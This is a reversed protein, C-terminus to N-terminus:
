AVRWFDRELMAEQWGLIEDWPPRRFHVGAAPDDARRGRLFLYVVGGFREDYEAQGRIGFLRLTGLTYIRAQLDYNAACHRELRAGDWSPLWDGKWDCVYLRGQHEFLVDIFGKVLGREIRFRPPDTQWSPMAGLLPQGREPLPYLFELERVVRDAVALTPLTATGLRMPAGLATHVLREAHPLHAPNRDHRRRMREFLAAIEPLARWTEFSPGDHLSALPVHELIEHLFRGSLRGRPLEGPPLAGDPGAPAPPENAAPHEDLRAEASIFGGHRRKIASYSTTVFGARTEAIGRLEDSPPERSLLGEPPVWAALALPPAHTPAVPADGPCPLTRCDFLRRTEEPASGGVLNHLRNNVLRYSGRLSKFAPPYLPLYLRARARTLAVYLVRREEDERENESQAHEEPPQRGVRCVRRGSEDHLVRVDGSPGPSFGGYVFVVAAELGKAHHITMIQVAQADTEIRQIDGNHGAPRRTKRIYAGLTRALEDITARHRASESQLIELIHLYNTLARESQRLFLERCVIGSEEIIRAFLAEFDGADALAKWGYLRALLPHAADLDDCVALDSLTLGFFATTFARTRATRDDPDAIARLLNLVERAEITDFLKEQKFYAFPIRAMRLAEGVDRSERVTRTLVFIDRASLPTSPGGDALALGHREDLLRRIEAVMQAKVVQKVQWAYLTPARAEVKFVQVPAQQVGRRDVLALGPRGCHVPHDYLIGSEPRFMPPDASQDFIANYAAILPETSRHNATLHLQAGGAARIEDRARLYTHVDAGRFRYIAQKPDGIVILAHRDDGSEFFIRRFIQWQVEDTDQFEDILALRYRGRLDHLLARQRPGEGELARAVLLLMDQFDFVGADRKRAELRAAVPPLLQQVVAAPLGIAAQELAVTCALLAAMGPEGGATQLAERLREFTDGELTDLGALLSAPCLDESVSSVVDVLNAMRDGASRAKRTNFKARKLAARVSEVDVQGFAAAAQHLARGDIPAPRMTDARAPFVFSLERHCNWLLRELASMTRGARIWADLYRAREDHPAIDRRLAESFAAHFAQEEDIIEEHFLRQQFFAYDTLLRQCFAHITSISAGDFSALADGLMRRAREDIIWCADDPLGRGAHSAPSDATLDRLEELKRRVRGTLEATAKETFTVVLIESLSFGHALLRDVVLHELLYTKGTGASAEIVAHGLGLRALEPPKPYRVAGSM